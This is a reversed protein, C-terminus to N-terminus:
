VAELYLLICTQNETLLMFFFLNFKYFLFWSFCFGVPYYNQLFFTQKTTKKKFHKTKETLSVNFSGLIKSLHLFLSM